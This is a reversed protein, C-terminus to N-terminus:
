IPVLILCPKQITLGDDQQFRQCNLVLDKDVLLAFMDDSNVVQREFVAADEFMHVFVQIGVNAVQFRGVDGNQVEEPCAEFQFFFGEEPSNKFGHLFIAVM